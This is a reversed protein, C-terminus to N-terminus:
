CLAIRLTGFLKRGQLRRGTVQARHLGPVLLPSPFSCSKSAPGVGPPGRGRGPPTVAASASSSAPGIWASDITALVGDCHSCDLASAGDGGGAGEDAADVGQLIQEVCHAAEDEVGAKLGKELYMM